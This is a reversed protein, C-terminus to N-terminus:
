LSKLDTPFGRRMTEAGVSLGLIPRTGASPGLRSIGSEVPKLRQSTGCRKHIESAGRCVTRMDFDWQKEILVRIIILM